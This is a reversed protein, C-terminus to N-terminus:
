VLINSQVPHSGQVVQSNSCQRPPALSLASINMQETCGLCSILKMSTMQQDWSIVRMDSKECSYPVLQQGQFLIFSLGGLIHIKIIKSFIEENIESFIEGREGPGTAATINLVKNIKQHRCNIQTDARWWFYLSLFHDKM